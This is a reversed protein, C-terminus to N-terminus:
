IHLGWVLLGVIVLLIYLIYIHIRGHQVVKLTDCLRRVGEFFPSFVGRLLGGSHRLECLARSPFFEGQQAYHRTIGVLQAFLKTLPAVFSAPSYQIRPTGFQYGCDWTRAERAGGNRRLLLKRLLWFAGSLAALGIGLALGQQLLEAAEVTAQAGAEAGMGAPFLSLVAPSMLSRFIWPAGLAFCLCCLALAVLCARNLWGADAANRAADSRPEGLFGIGYAKAFAAATLGGMLVLAILAGFFAIQSGIGPLMFGKLLALIVLLKGVFGNLPPLCSIATAGLVFATGTWPMRRQLGGLLELRVTAASHLVEGACLFLLGKMATHNLLHLFAAGYGLAAIWANGTQTGIYGAGVGILAIGMHEVSSYALLRKLESQGLAKLIGALGTCVGAGVLTWGWWISGEGFFDLSRALGYIGVHIMAGSLIASIHSPAAPHAEPLWVHFPVIGAKAGFGALALMFLVSGTGLPFVASNFTSFATGDTHAWLLGFM